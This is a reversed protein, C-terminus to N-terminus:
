QERTFSLDIGLSDYFDIYDESFFSMSERFIFQQWDKMNNWMIKSDYPAKLLNDMNDDIVHHQSGAWIGNTGIKESNNYINDLIKEPVTYTGHTSDSIISCLLDRNKKLWEFNIPRFGVTMALDLDKIVKLSDYLNSAITAIQVNTLTCKFHNQTKEIISNFISDQRKGNVYHELNVSGITISRENAKFVARFRKIPCGFTYIVQFSPTQPPYRRISGLMEEANFFHSMVYLAKGPYVEQMETMLCDIPARRRFTINQDCHLMLEPDNAIKRGYLDHSLGPVECSAIAIDPLMRFVSSIWNNGCGGTNTIFLYFPSTARNM